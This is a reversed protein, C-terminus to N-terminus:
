ESLRRAAAEVMGLQPHAFGAEDEEINVSYPSEDTYFTHVTIMMRDDLVTLGISEFYANQDSSDDDQYVVEAVEAAAPEVVVPTWDFSPRLVRIGKAPDGGALCNAVWGQYISKAREAASRDAFQLVVAYRDPQKDLSSRPFPGDGAPYRAQFSRSKISSAGLTALPQPQCISLQDLSRANRHYEIVKGGGIPSPLDAATILNADTITRVQSTTSPSLTPAPPPTFWSCQALLLCSGVAVVAVGLRGLRHFAKM